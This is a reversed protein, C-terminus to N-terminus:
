EKRKATMIVPRHTLYQAHWVALGARKLAHLDATDVQGVIPSGTHLPETVHPGYCFGIRHSSYSMMGPKLRSLLRKKKGLPARQSGKTEPHKSPRGYGSFLQGTSLTHSCIMKLPENLETWLKDCIEPEEQDLLTVTVAIKQHPWEIEIKRTMTSVM